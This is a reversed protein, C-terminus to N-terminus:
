RRAAATIAAIDDPHYLNKPEDQWAQAFRSHESLGQLLWQFEPLSMGALEAGSVRYERRFDSVILAWRRQM